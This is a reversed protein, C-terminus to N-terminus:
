EEDDLGMEAKLKQLEVEVQFAREIEDMDVIFRAVCLLAYLRERRHQAERHLKCENGIIAMLTVSAMILVTIM